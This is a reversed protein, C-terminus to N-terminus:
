QNIGFSSTRQLNAREKGSDIGASRKGFVMPFFHRLFWASPYSLCLALLAFAGTWLFSTEKFAHPMGFVVVAVGTFFSFMLLHLPFIVITNKSLWQFVAHAPLSISFCFLALVGLYANILFLYRHNGFLLTNLDVEGNIGAVYAVGAMVCLALMTAMSKPTKELIADQYRRFFHGTSYFALAVVANDLGWPLRQWSPDYVLTFLLGMLNFAVLLSTASLYKRAWFFILSTTFLCTFFWLVVNVFLADGNGIVVGVVPEWWSVGAHRAASASLDHTPLWYLYSILFFFLYPIGLGKWLSSLNERYTMSMKQESLLVGSIFFFLPMHFSYIVNKIFPNLGPSHGIVVLVIGIAKMTDVHTLRKMRDNEQGDM